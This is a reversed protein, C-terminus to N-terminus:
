RYFPIEAVCIRNSVMGAIARQLQDDNLFLLHAVPSTRGEIRHEGIGFRFLFAAGPRCVQRRVDGSGAANVPRATLLGFSQWPRAGGLREPRLKLRMAILAEM